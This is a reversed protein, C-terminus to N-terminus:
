PFYQQLYYNEKRRMEKEQQPTKDNFGCLHLAGHFIVRHLEEKFSTNHIQANEMVRDCSIYIESQKPHNKASLDFTIIDTFYDHGLYGKNIAHLQKDNTFVISLSTLQRKENKFITLIFKKLRARDKLTPRSELFFFNIKSAPPM